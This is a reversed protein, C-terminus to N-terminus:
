PRILRNVARPVSGAAGPEFARSWRLSWHIAVAVSYGAVVDVLYHQKTFLTSVGILLAAAMAFLGRRRDAEWTALAAIMAATCHESPLCNWAPDNGWILGLTWTGIDHPPPPLPPRDYAVPYAVFFISCVAFMLLDAAVLRQYSTRDKVAFFPLLFIPYLLIYLFSYSPVLPIGSELASSLFRVRTPDIIRGILFYIGAWLGFLLAGGIAWRMWGAPEELVRQRDELAVRLAAVAVPMVGPILWVMVRPPFDLHLWATALFLAMSAGMAATVYFYIFRRMRGSAPSANDTSADMARRRIVQFSDVADASTGGM